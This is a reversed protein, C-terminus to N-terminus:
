QRSEQDRALQDREQELKKFNMNTNSKDCGALTLDLQTKKQWGEAQQQSAVSLASATSAIQNQINLIAAGASAGSPSNQEVIGGLSALSSAREGIFGRGLPMSMSPGFSLNKNPPISSNLNTGSEMRELASNDLNGLPNFTNGGTAAVQSLSSM